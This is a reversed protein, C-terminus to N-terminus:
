ASADSPSHKYSPWEWQRCLWECVCVRSLVSFMSVRVCRVASEASELQSCSLGMGMHTLHVLTLPATTNTARILFTELIDILYAAEKQNM